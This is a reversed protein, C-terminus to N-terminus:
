FKGLPLVVRSGGRDQLCFLMAITNSYDLYDDGKSMLPSLGKELGESYSTSALTSLNM